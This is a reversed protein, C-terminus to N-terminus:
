NYREQTAGTWGTYSSWIKYKRLYFTNDTEFLIWAIYFQNFGLVTDNLDIMIWENIPDGHYKITHVGPNRTYQHNLGLDYLRVTKVQAKITAWIDIWDTDGFFLRAKFDPTVTVGQGAQINVSPVLTLFGDEVQWALEFPNSYHLNVSRQNFWDSTLGTLLPAPFADIADALDPVGWRDALERILADRVWRPVPLGDILDYLDVLWMKIKPASVQGSPIAITPHLKLNWPGGGCNTSVIEVAFTLSGHGTIFDVTPAPVRIVYDCGAVAGSFSTWGQRTWQQQIFTNMADDSVKVPVAINRVTQASATGAM